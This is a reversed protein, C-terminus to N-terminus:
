WPLNDGKFSIFKGSHEDKLGEMVRLLGSVSETATILAGKGGMKTMAWGPHLVIALIGHPKLDVSLTKTVMNLAAKSTRYAYSGGSTNDEISGMRSTINVVAARSVSLPSDASAAAAKKLLPLFAKTLMLPSVANTEFEITMKEPTITDLTQEPQYIGANNILLNLVGDPGLSTEVWQVVSPFSEYNLVDFKHIHVNANKGAVEQLETATDPDRCTAFIHKPPNSLQTLQKVFELGLGRSCGTIFVAGVRLGSAM